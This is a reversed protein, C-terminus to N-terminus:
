ISITPLNHSTYIQDQIRDALLRAHLTYLSSIHVPRTQGVAIFYDRVTGYPAHSDYGSQPTDQETEQNYVQAGYTVMSWWMM